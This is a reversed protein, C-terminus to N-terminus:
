SHPPSIKAGPKKGPSPDFYYHVGFRLEVVQPTDSFGNPFRKADKAFASHWALTWELSTTTLSKLFHEVGIEATAGVYTGQHLAFTTTDKIVKRYDQLVVRYIGPGAGVHWTSAGRSRFLLLQADGGVLQTLYNDKTPHASAFAKDYLPSATGSKYAAWTFYPNVQWGWQRSSAYRLSGTFSFRSQAGKAYDGGAAMYSAGIQAGAAGTHAKLGLRASSTTDSQQAFSVSASVLLLLLAVSALRVRSIM